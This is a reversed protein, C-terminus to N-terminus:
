NDGKILKIILDTVRESAHGDDILGFKKKFEVYNNLIENEDFEKIINLLEINDKAIPFPLQSFNFYLGREYNYSDIDNAYLIVPKSAIISEFMISSYDTILIDCACILEQMDDYKSGNIYNNCKILREPEKINPHLRIIVEWKENTNKELLNKLKEFDINYPNNNYDNRFTPAYLLLNANEKINLTKYVKRKIFNSNTILIDNKPTGYELIKGKYRFTNQYMKTAFDSNSIMFDAMKNDQKMCKVYYDGLKDLVDYEIKKLMMCGHWVQIYYQKKRKPTWYEKRCNDIWVKSTALEYLSKISGYRVKKIQKPLGNNDWNEKNILWIIKVKEHQKLLCESIYKANDGYGKGFYNSILVKNNQIPVLRFLYGFFYMRFQYFFRYIHKMICYLISNKRLLKQIHQKM